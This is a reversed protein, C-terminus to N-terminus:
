LKSAFIPRGGPPPLQYLDGIFIVHVGGFPHHPMDRALCLHQDMRELLWSSIFSMEDVMLVDVHKWFSQLAALEEGRPLPKDVVMGYSQNQVLIGLASHLTVGNINFAAVGTPAALVVGRESQRLMHASARTVVSKGCGGPGHVLLQLRELNGKDRSSPGELVSRLIYEMCKRQKLVEPSPDKITLMDFAEEGGEVPAFIDTAPGTPVTSPAMFDIDDGHREKLVQLIRISDQYNEEEARTHTYAANDLKAKLFMVAQVAQLERAAQVTGDLKPFCVSQLFTPHQDRNTAIRHFAAAHSGCDAETLWDGPEVWRLYLLMKSYYFEEPQLDPSYNRHGVIAPRKRTRVKDPTFMGGGFHFGAAFAFFTIERWPRPVPVGGEVPVMVVAEPFNQQLQQYWRQASPVGRGAEQQRDKYAAPDLLADEEEAQPVSLTWTSPPGVQLWQNQRSFFVPSYGLLYHVAEFTSTTRGQTAAHAAKYVENNILDVRGADQLYSQLINDMRKKAQLDEESKFCYGLIYKSACNLECVVQLDMSCRCFKLIATNYQSVFGDAEHRRAALSAKWRSAFQEQGTRWRTRKEAARPFGFRCSGLTYKGCYPGCKHEALILWGPWSAGSKRNCALTKWGATHPSPASTSTASIRQVLRCLAPGRKKMQGISKMKGLQLKPGGKALSMLFM